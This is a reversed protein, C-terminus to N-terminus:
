FGSNIRGELFEKKFIMIENDSGTDFGYYNVTVMLEVNNSVWSLGLSTSSKDEDNIVGTAKGFMSSFNGLLKKNDALAIQYHNRDDGSYEKLILIGVLKNSNDFFLKIYDFSLEFVNFLESENGTYFYGTSNDNQIYKWFKLKGEYKSKSDGLKFTKFGNKEDLKSLDQGIANVFITVLAILLITKQIM